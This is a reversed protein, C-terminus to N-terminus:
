VLYKTAWVYVVKNKEMVNFVVSLLFMEISSQSFSEVAKFFPHISQKKQMSKIDDLSQDFMTKRWLPYLVVILFFAVVYVISDKAILTQAPSQSSRM